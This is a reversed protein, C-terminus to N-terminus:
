RISDAWAEIAVTCSLEVCDLYQQVREGANGRACCYAIAATYRGASSLCDALTDIAYALEYQHPSEICGRMIESYSDNYQDNLTKSIKNIESLARFARAAIVTPKM